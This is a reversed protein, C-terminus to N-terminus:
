FTRATGFPLYRFIVRGVILREDIPGIRTSRSDTSNNRNDGMVFVYGDPVTYQEGYAWGNMRVGDIFRVYDEELAIGDVFVTWSEQNIRITQGSTAIVRKVLPTEFGYNESQCVIIDGTKPKYAFNSVILADKDQLTERM